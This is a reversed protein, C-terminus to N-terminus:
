VDKGELEAMFRGVSNKPYLVMIDDPNKSVYYRIARRVFEAKSQGTEELAKDLSEAETAPLRTAFAKSSPTDM